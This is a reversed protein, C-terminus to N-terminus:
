TEYDRYRDVLLKFSNVMDKNLLDINNKLDHVIKNRIQQFYKINNKEDETIISGGSLYKLSFSIGKDPIGTLSNDWAISHLATELVIWNELFEALLRSRDTNPKVLEFGFLKNFLKNALVSYVEVNEKQITLGNGQHYLQNRLRHFWEILGLDIGIIKDSAYKELTDLLAHFNEFIEQYEKRPIVLGTIRKPLGLYTKITLEVSNDIAIMALRRNSDTDSQLLEIGNNLIEGPGSAWAPLEQVSM